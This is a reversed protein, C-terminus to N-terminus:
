WSYITTHWAQNHSWIVCSYKCLVMTWIAGKLVSAGKNTFAWYQVNLLYSWTRKLSFQLLRLITTWILVWTVFGYISFAQKEGSIIYDLLPLRSSSTSSTYSPSFQGIWRERRIGTGLTSQDCKRRYRLMYRSNMDSTASPNPYTSYLFLAHRTDSAM